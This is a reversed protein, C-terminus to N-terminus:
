LVRRVVEGGFAAGPIDRYTIKTAIGIRKAGCEMCRYIPSAPLALVDSERSLLAHNTIICALVNPFYVLVSPWM